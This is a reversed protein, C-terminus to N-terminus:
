KVMVSNIGVGIASSDDQAKVFLRATGQSEQSFTHLVTADKYVKVIGAIREFKLVSSAGGLVEAPLNEVYAGNFRLIGGGGPAIGMLFINSEDSFEIKLDNILENLKFSYYGDGAITQSSEVSGFYGGGSARTVRNGSVTFGIPLQFVVPSESAGAPPPPPPAPPPPPPPAIFVPPSDTASYYKLRLLESKHLNTELKIQAKLNSESQDRNRKEIEWGQFVPDNALIATVATSRQKDNTYKLQNNLEFRDNLITALVEARRTEIDDTLGLRAEIEMALAIEKQYISAAFRNTAVIMENIEQGTAM